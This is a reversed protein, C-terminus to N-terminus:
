KDVDINNVLHTPENTYHNYTLQTVKDDIM